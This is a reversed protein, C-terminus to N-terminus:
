FLLSSCLLSCCLLLPASSCLLPPAPAEAHAHAHAHTPGVQEQVQIQAVSTFHRQFSSKGVVILQTPMTARATAARPRGTHFALEGFGDGTTATGLVKARRKAGTSTRAAERVFQVGGYVVIYFKDAPDGMSFIAEGTSVRVHSLEKLVSALKSSGAREGSHTTEDVLQSFIKLKELRMSVQARQLLSWQEFPVHLMFDDLRSGVENTALKQAYTVFSRRIEDKRQRSLAPMTVCRAERQRSLTLLRLDAFSFILFRTLARNSVVVVVVVVARVHTNEPLVM